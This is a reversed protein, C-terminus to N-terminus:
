NKCTMSLCAVSSHWMMSTISAGRWNRTSWGLKMRDRSGCVFFFIEILLFRLLANLFWFALFIIRPLQPLLFAFRASNWTYAKRSGANRSLLSSMKSALVPKSATSSSPSCTNESRDKELSNWQPSPQYGLFGLFGESIRDELSRSHICPTTPEVLSIVPLSLPPTISFLRKKRWSGLSCSARRLLSLSFFFHSPSPLSSRM